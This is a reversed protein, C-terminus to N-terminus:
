PAPGTGTTNRIRTGSAGSRKRSAPRARMFMSRSRATWRSASRRDPMAAGERASAIAAPVGGPGGGVVIVEYDGGFATEQSLGRIRAREKQVRETERPPVYDFDTTLLIAAFRGFYGTLDRVRIETQGEPLDYDGAIEWVWADSHMRGLVNGEDCGNVLIRFQGPSHWRLWNRTRAWVRYRGGAPINVRIVADEVPVGPRDAAMLYGSGMLHVFQTDEKWGGKETFDLADIWIETKRDM